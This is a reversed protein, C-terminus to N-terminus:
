FMFWMGVQGVLAQVGRMEEGAQEGVARERV